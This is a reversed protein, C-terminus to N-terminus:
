FVEWLVCVQQGSAENMFNNVSCAHPPVKTVVILETNLIMRGQICDCAISHSFHTNNGSKEM